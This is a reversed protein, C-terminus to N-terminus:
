NLSYYVLVAHSIHAALFVASVAIFVWRKFPLSFSFSNGIIAIGAIWVLPTYAPAAYGIVSNSWASVPFFILLIWSVFYFLLGSLYIYLGVKQKHTHLNLPMLFAIVFLLFRSINEVYTLAIPIGGSFIEPRYNAPLKETLLINWILIPLILIFCNYVYPKIIGKVTEM